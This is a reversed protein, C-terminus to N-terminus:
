NNFGSEVALKVLGATNKVGLKRLINKRHTEVTFASLCLFDAIEQTTREELIHGLIEKERKTLFKDIISESGSGHTDSPQENLASAAEQSIFAEGSHIASIANLLEEKMTNKLVYGKMGAKICRRIMEPSDNMTLALISADPKVSLIDRAAELGSKDPLNIDMLMVDFDRLKALSFADSANYGAAVVNYGKELELLSRLGDVVIHHDDIIIIRIAAKKLESKQYMKIKGAFRPTCTLRNFM